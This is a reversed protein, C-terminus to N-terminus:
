KNTLNLNDLSKIQTNFNLYLNTSENMKNKTKNDYDQDEGTKKTNDDNMVKTNEYFNKEKISSDNNKQVNEGLICNEIQNIKILTNKIFDEWDQYKKMKENLDSNNVGIEVLKNAIKCIHGYNGRLYKTEKKSPLYNFCVKIINPILESNEIIENILLNLTEDDLISIVMNCVSNHLFSNWLNNFFLDLIKKMIQYQRFKFEILIPYQFLLVHFLNIILLKIKGVPQTINSYSKFNENKNNRCLLEGLKGISNLILQQISELKKYSDMHKDKPLYRVLGILIHFSNEITSTTSEPNLISKILKEYFDFNELEHLFIKNPNEHKLLNLFFKKINFQIDQDNGNILLDILKTVVKTSILFRNKQIRSFRPVQRCSQKNINNNYSIIKLYEQGKWGSSNIILNHRFNNLDANLLKLNEIEWNINEDKKKSFKLQQSIHDFGLIELKKKIKYRRKYISIRAQDLKAETKCIIRPSHPNIKTFKTVKKNIWVNDKVKEFNKKFHKEKELWIGLYKIESLTKSKLIKNTNPNMGFEQIIKCIIILKNDIESIPGEMILILDDAFM